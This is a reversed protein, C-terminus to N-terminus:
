GPSFRVDYTYYSRQRLTGLRAVAGAPLPDGLLDVAPPAATVSLGWLLALGLAAPLRHIMAHDEPRFYKKPQPSEDGSAKPKEKKAKNRTRRHSRPAKPASPAVQNAQVLRTGFGFWLFRRHIAASWFRVVWFVFAFSLRSSAPPACAVPENSR